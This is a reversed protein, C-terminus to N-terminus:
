ENELGFERRKRAIEFNIAKIQSKLADAPVASDYVVNSFAFNYNRTLMYSGPVAPVTILRGDEHIKALRLMEEPWGVRYFAEVNAPCTRVTEDMAAVNLRTNEVIVDASTIWKVFEWCADKKKENLIFWGESVSCTSHDYTGDAKETCWLM